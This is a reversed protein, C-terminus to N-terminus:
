GSARRWNCDSGSELVEYRSLGGSADIAVIEGALVDTCLIRGKPADWFPGEGHSEVSVTVREANRMM